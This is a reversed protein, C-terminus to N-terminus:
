QLREMQAVAANGVAIAIEEPAAGQMDLVTGHGYTTRFRGTIQVWIVAVDKRRCLTMFATAFSQETVKNFRADSCVVLLRAGDGDLLNLEHDAALAASSFNEWPDNAEYLQVNEDLQGPRSIGHVAAGFHIACTRAGARHGAHSLMWHVSSLADVGEQMSGSVDSLLAISLKGRQEPSYVRAKFLEPRPGRLGLDRYAAAQAAARSRLRGPPVARTTRGIDPINRNDSALLKQSLITAARQESATPPREGIKHAVPPGSANPDLPAASPAPFAEAAASASKTRRTADAEDAAMKRHTREKTRAVIIASDANVAATGVASRIWDGDQQSSGASFILGDTGEAPEDIAALWRKAVSYMAPLNRDDLALFELWLERLSTLTQQGLIPTIAAKVPDGDSALLTRGDVRGLVLAAAAAAGYTTQPLTFDQLILDLAAARLFLKQGPVRQILKSECRPEELTLIVDIIKDSIKGTDQLEHISWRTHASHAVEHGAAGVFTANELRWLADSTDISGPDANPLCITSNIEIEARSPIFCAPAGHGAGPGITIALDTRQALTNAYQTLQSIAPLWEDPTTGRPSLTDSFNIHATM